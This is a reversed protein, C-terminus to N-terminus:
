SDGYKDALTVQSTAKLAAFSIAAGGSEMGLRQHILSIKYFIIFVVVLIIIFQAVLVAWLGANNSSQGIQSECCSPTLVLKETENMPEPESESVSVPAMEVDGGLDIEVLDKERFTMNVYQGVNLITYRASYYSSRFRSTAFAPRLYPLSYSTNIMHLPLAHHLIAVTGLTVCPKYPTFVEGHLSLYCSCPLTVELAGFEQPPIMEDKKGYAECKILLPSVRDTTVVFKNSSVRTILPFSQVTSPEPVQCDMRCHERMNEIKISSSTAEGLGGVAELCKDRDGDGYGPFVYKHIFIMYKCNVICNYISLEYHLWYKVRLNMKKIFQIALLQPM